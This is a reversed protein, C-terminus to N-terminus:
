RARQMIWYDRRTVFETHQAVIRFGVSEYFPITRPTFTELFCPANQTDAQALTPVLLQKGLGKGQLAPSIGLISLYWANHPVSHEAHPAMAELMATYNEYGRPSLINKLAANKQARLKQAVDDVQPLLWIAAGARTQPEIEIKGYAGAEYLAYAFYARLIARWTADRTYLDPTLAAYFPDDQLADTLADLAAIPFRKNQPFM